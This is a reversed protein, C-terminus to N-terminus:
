KDAYGDFDNVEFCFYYIGERPHDIYKEIIKNCHLIGIRSFYKKFFYRM